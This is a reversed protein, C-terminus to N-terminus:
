GQETLWELIRAEIEDRVRRFVELREEETGEAAAPDDFPWYMRNSVGPWTSPCESEARSCVIIVYQMTVRGLYDRASEPKLSGTDTDAEELVKLTLPNIDAPYLGSSFVEFRDGAHKRLLAEGMQSRCSNHSCLFMVKEKERMQFDETCSIVDKKRNDDKILPDNQVLEYMQITLSRIFPDPQIQLSYYTWKNERRKRVFGADVLVQMHKSMTSDAVQLVESFKCLCVEGEHLLALARVRLPHSVAKGAATILNLFDSENQQKTMHRFTYIFLSQTL